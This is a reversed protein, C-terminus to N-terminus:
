FVYRMGVNWRWKEAVPGLTQRELDVYSYCNPTFKYNSGLGFEYYTGGLDDKFTGTTDSNSATYETEVSVWRFSASWM